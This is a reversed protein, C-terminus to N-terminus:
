STHWEDNGMKEPNGLYQHVLHGGLLGYTVESNPSIAPMSIRFSCDLSKQWKVLIWKFRKIVNKM